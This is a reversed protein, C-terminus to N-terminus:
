GAGRVGHMRDRDRYPEPPDALPLLGEALCEGRRVQDRGAPAARNRNRWISVISEEHPLLYNSILREFAEVNECNAKLSEKLNQVAFTKNEQAEYAKGLVLYKLSQYYGQEQPDHFCREM